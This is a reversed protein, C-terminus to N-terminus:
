AAAFFRLVLERAGSCHLKRYMRCLHTRVSAYRCGLESGMAKPHVGRLLLLLVEAERPSLRHQAVFDSLRHDLGQGENSQTENTEM